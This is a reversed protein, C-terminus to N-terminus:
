KVRGNGKIHSVIRLTESEQIVRLNLNEPVNISLVSMEKKEGRWLTKEFCYENGASSGRRHSGTEETRAKEPEGLAARRGGPVRSLHKLHVKWSTNRKIGRRERGSNAWITSRVQSDEGSTGGLGKWGGATPGEQLAAQRNGRDARPCPSLRGQRDGTNLATGPM